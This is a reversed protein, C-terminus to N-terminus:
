GAGHRRTGGQGSSGVLQVGLLWGGWLPGFLLALRLSERGWPTVALLLLGASTLASLLVLARLREHARPRGLALAIGLVACGLAWPPAGLLARNQFAAEHKSFFWFWSFVVGLLGLAAGWLASYLGFVVRLWRRRRGSAGLTVFAGGLAVGAVLFWLRREPPESPTPPFSSSLLQRQRAVLPVRRGDLERQALSLEDHLEQPLFLEQWRTTPRDTAAGLALDLGAYVFPADSLLRLTHQRFTLRGPGAISRQLEGGLLRDLVDRVRTSCNDRYYDYDYYRNEPAANLELLEALQAREAASLRLEQATLSRGARGYSRLTGELTGVSLWYRFRGAMFDSVGQLGHFAFTGFNYVANPRAGGEWELLIANHGFRTFPHQGPGMTLVSVRAPPETAWAAAPSTLVLGVCVLWGLRWLM